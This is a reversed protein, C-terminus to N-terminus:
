LTGLGAAVDAPTLRTVDGPTADGAADHEAVVFVRTAVGADRIHQVFRARREDWCLLLVVATSTQRLLETFQPAIVDIPDAESREICALVDLINELYALSRGAQFHYLHPGAAFLDVIYEQRALYDAIAAALSLNAEFAADFPLGGRKVVRVHGLRHLGGSGRRAYRLRLGFGLPATRGPRWTDVLMAVRTLFEEQFQKVVPKGVRAWSRPHIDRVRDGPQYDRNGIYEMSEGVHSTLALGRPQYRRAAPINLRTLPTFAPCVMLRARQQAFHVRSQTLGFPWPSLVSPGPLVYSGRRAATLTYQLSHSAGGPLVDIYQIPGHISLGRPLRFEFAGVDGADRDSPNHLRMTLPTPEGAVCRRPALRQVTVPPRHVLSVTLSLLLLTTFFSFAVAGVMHEPFAGAVGSAMAGALVYRGPLTLRERWFHTMYRRFLYGKLERRSPLLFLRLRRLTRHWAM